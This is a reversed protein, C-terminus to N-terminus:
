GRALHERLFRITRAMAAAAYHQAHAHGPVLVTRAQVGARRLAKAMAISQSPPTTDHRSAFLLMPTDGRSVQDIPSAQAWLDPCALLDCGLYRTTINALEGKLHELDLQGSWTVAAGLRTGTRLSGTGGTAVLGVLNGGASSGLAGIRRPDIGLSRAHARLWRVAQEVASRQRGPLAAGAPALPYDINLVVFGSRRALEASVPALTARSNYLWSGGHVTVVAIRSHRAPRYLDGLLPGAQDHGYRVTAAGAPAAALILLLAPLLRRM